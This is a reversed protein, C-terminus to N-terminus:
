FYPVEACAGARGSVNFPSSTNAGVTRLYAEVAADQYKPRQFVNSFGGGSSTWATEADEAETFETGGVATVSTSFIFKFNLRFTLIRSVLSM